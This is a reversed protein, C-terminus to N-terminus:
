DMGGIMDLWRVAQTLPAAQMLVVMGVAVIMAPVVAQLILDTRGRARGAFLDAARSFGEALDEGSTVLMWGFAKPFTRQTAAFAEVSGTGGAIARRWSAWERGGPSDGELSEALEIANPLPVGKKLAAGIVSAACALRAERYAPLRWAFWNKLRPICLVAVAAISLGILTVPPVLFAAVALPHGLMLGFFGPKAAPSSLPGSAYMVTFVNDSLWSLGWCLGLSLLASLFLASLPYALAIRLREAMEGARRYHEALLNLVGPLDGSAAGVVFLRRYFEPLGSREMAGAVPVGQALMREVAELEARWHGRKMERTVERLAGELPIGSKLMGALQQSAFAIEDPKM